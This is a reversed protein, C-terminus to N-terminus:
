FWLCELIIEYVYGVLHLQKLICFLKYLVLHTPPVSRDGVTFVVRRYSM